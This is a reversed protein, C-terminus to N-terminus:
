SKKNQRYFGQSSSQLPFIPRADVINVPQGLDFSANINPIVKNTEIERQINRQANEIQFIREENKIKLDTKLLEHTNARQYFVLSFAWSIGNLDILEDYGDVLSFQWSNIDTSNFNRTNFDFNFQQYYMVSLTPFSGINLLEELIGDQSNKCINSKIFMRLIFSLNIANTSVLTNASFSNSSGQIFGLQRFPSKAPFAFSPQTGSNGTITFTYKFTDVVTAAPYSVNYVWGSPAGTNLLTILATQLNNKTYNGIPITITRQSIETLTFTNYNTPMNYFSKPISASVLCVSDYKNIGLDVPESVFNNNTGSVRDKSDFNIVTPNVNTSDYLSM